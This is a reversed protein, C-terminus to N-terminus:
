PESESVPPCARTTTPTSTGTLVWARTSRPTRPSCFLTHAGIFTFIHFGPAPAIINKTDSCDTGASTCAQHTTCYFSTYKCCPSLLCFLHSYTRKTFFNLMIVVALPARRSIKVESSAVNCDCVMLTVCGAYKTFPQVLVFFALRANEKRMHQKGEQFHIMGHPLGRLHQGLSPYPRFANQSFKTHM